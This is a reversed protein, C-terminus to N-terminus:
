PAEVNRHWRDHTFYDSVLASCTECVNVAVKGQFVVQTVDIHERHGIVEPENENEPM